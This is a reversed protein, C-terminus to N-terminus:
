AGTETAPIPKGSSLFLLNATLAPLLFCKRPQRLSRNNQGANINWIAVSARCARSHWFGHRINASREETTLNGLKLAMTEDEPTRAARAAFAPRPQM